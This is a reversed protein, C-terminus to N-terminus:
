PAIEKGAWDWCKGRGESGMGKLVELLREAAFAPEFLKEKPTSDWFERSLDTKVTGPHLGVSMARPGAQLQLMIDLSKVLQNVGAKSARYSYWGGRANDSISGVRASMFAMIAADNLGDVPDLEFTKKKPLFPSLHKMLMMPALLNLKLTALAADHSIKDPAREPVLMGPVLLALRLHASKSKTRDNYRAGCYAAAAAVSSESDLDLPQVDLRDSQSPTLTLTDLIRAKTGALDSRATAVIPLTTPTTLLLHRTLALGIGRSSPTVLAWAMTQTPHHHSPTLQSPPHTQPSNRHHTTIFPISSIGTAGICHHTASWLSNYVVGPITSFTTSLKAARNYTLSCQTEQHATVLRSCFRFSTKSRAPFDIQVSARSADGLIQWGAGHIRRM